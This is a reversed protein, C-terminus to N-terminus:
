ELPFTEGVPSALVGSRMLRSITRTLRLMTLLRQHRVWEPLWFGEVRKAGVMLLRPDFAIPERSLTGFLVLRGGTGLAEIMASATAGGVPDIAYKVGHGNTLPASARRSRSM